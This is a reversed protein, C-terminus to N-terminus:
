TGPAATVAERYHGRQWLARAGGWVWPHMTAASLQPADDGLKERVEADRRLVVEARQVAERHQCWRNVSRNDGDPVETRWSPLVREVVAASAVIDAEPGRNSLQSRFIVVGPPDAPLLTMGGRSTEPCVAPCSLPWFWHRTCGRHDRRRGPEGSATALHYAGVSAFHM